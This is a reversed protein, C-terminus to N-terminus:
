SAKRPRDRQKRIKYVYIVRGEDGYPYRHVLRLDGKKEFSVFADSNEQGKEEMVLYDAGKKKGARVIRQPTAKPPMPLYEGGAYYAVRPINTIILPSSLSQERLWLGVEKRGIKDLRQPQLCFALMAGLIIIVPIVAALGPYRAFRRQVWEAIKAFGFGAWVYLLFIAPLHYRGSAYLNPFLIVILAGILLALYKEEAGFEKTKIRQGLGFLALVLPVLYAKELFRGIIRVIGEGIHSLSPSEYVFWRSFFHSIIIYPKKGVLFEWGWMGTIILALVIGMFVIVAWLYRHVPKRKEWMRRILGYGLWGGMVALVVLTNMRVLAGVLAFVVTWILWQGKGEQLFRLSCYVSSLLLFVLLGEKLVDVSCEFMLPNILYLVTTWFAPRPGFLSKGILYLPFVALLSFIISILQGSLEFSGTVHSLLSILFPYLPLQPQSLAQLYEGEYFLKAVPIYQLAGDLSIMYIQSFAYLRLLLGFSLLIILNRRDEKSLDLTRFV